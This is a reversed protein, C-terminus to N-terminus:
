WVAKVKGFVANDEKSTLRKHKLDIQWYGLSPYWCIVIVEWVM